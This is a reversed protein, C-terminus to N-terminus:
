LDALTQAVLPNMVGAKTFAAVADAKIKAIDLDPSRPEPQQEETLSSLVKQVAQAPKNILTHTHPIPDHPQSDAAPPLPGPVSCFLPVTLCPITLSPATSSVAVRTALSM